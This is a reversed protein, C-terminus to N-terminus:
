FAHIQKGLITIMKCYFDSLHTQDQFVQVCCPNSLSLAQYKIKSIHVQPETKTGKQSALLILADLFDSKLAHNPDRQNSVHLKSMLVFWQM